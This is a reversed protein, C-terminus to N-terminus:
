MTVPVIVAGDASKSTSAGVKVPATLRVTSDDVPCPTRTFNVTLAWPSTSRAIGTVQLGRDPDNNRTPRECTVHVAVSVLAFVAVRDNVTV